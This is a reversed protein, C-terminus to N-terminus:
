FKGGGGGHTTGSSSSHTSSGGSSREIKTKSVTSYLFLDQKLTVKMSNHDMYQNAAQQFRVPKLQAKLCLTVILAIVLGIALAILIANFFSFPEKQSETASYFYDYVERDDNTFYESDEAANTTEGNAWRILYHCIGAYCLFGDYYEGDKLFPLIREGLREIDDDSFVAIGYGTTSLWWDRSEMALLLLCGDHEEGYGYGHQDYYDDAYDMPSANGISDVTLVVADFHKNERIENLVDTLTNQEEETMLGAADVVLPPLDTTEEASLPASLGGFLLLFVTLLVSISKKM